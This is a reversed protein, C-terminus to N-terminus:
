SFERGTFSNGHKDVWNDDPLRPDRYKLAHNNPSPRKAEVLAKFEDLTCLEGYENRIEGGTSLVDLWEDYSEVAFIPEDPEYDKYRPYGRFSFTWGASSKGIHKEDYRECCECINTRHYYNTGM